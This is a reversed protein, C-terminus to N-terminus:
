AAESTEAVEAAALGGVVFWLYTRGDSRSTFMGSTEDKRNHQIMAKLVIDAPITDAHRWVRGKGDLLIDGVYTEGQAVRLVTQVRSQRSLPSVGGARRPRQELTMVSM